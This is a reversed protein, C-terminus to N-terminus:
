LNVGVFGSKWRVIEEKIGLGVLNQVRNEFEMIFRGIFVEVCVFIYGQVRAFFVLLQGQIGKKLLVFFQFVRLIEIMPEVLLKLLIFYIILRV